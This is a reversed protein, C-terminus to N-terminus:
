SLLQPASVHYPTLGAVAAAVAAVAYLDAGALVRDHDPVGLLSVTAGHEPEIGQGPAPESVTQLRALGQPVGRRGARDLAGPPNTMDHHQGAARRNASGTARAPPASWGPFAPFLDVGCSRSSAEVACPGDVKKSDQHVSAFGWGTDRASIALEPAVNQVLAMM